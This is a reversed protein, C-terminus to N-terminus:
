SRSGAPRGQRTEVHVLVDSVGRMCENDVIVKEDTHARRINQGVGTELYQISVMAIRGERQQLRMVSVDHQEECVDLHRPGQISKGKSPCHGLIPRM